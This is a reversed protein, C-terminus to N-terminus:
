ALLKHFKNYCSHCRLARMGLINLFGDVVTFSASFRVQPSKCSPCKIGSKVRKPLPRRVTFEPQEVYVPQEAIYGGQAPAIQTATSMENDRKYQIDDACPVPIM